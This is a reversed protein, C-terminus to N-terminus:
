LKEGKIFDRWYRYWCDPGDMNFKQEDSYIINEWEIGLRSEKYGM